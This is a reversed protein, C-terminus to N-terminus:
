APRMDARAGAAVSTNELLGVFRDIAAPEIHMSFEDTESRGGTRHPDTRLSVEVVAHGASDVCRFRLRAGGGAYRPDFVGIELERRDQSSTPFGRVTDCIRAFVDHGDYLGVTGSFHGNSAWISLEVVDDDFWVVSLSLGSDV